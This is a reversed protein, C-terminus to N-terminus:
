RKLIRSRYVAEELETPVNERIKQQETALMEFAATRGRYGSNLCDPCGKGRYFMVDKSKAPNLGMSVLEDEGPTYSEKCNPCIKRLLRQAVVGKLAGAILYPEVGIDLLRDLTALASNTHITSLVLHGTIAARM